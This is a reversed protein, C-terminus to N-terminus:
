LYIQPQNDPQKYFRKYSWQYQEPYEMILTEMQQNIKHSLAELSWELDLDEAERIVLKFGVSTRVVVSFVVACETKKIIKAPLTMTWAPQNFFPVFVGANEAPEQDPLLLTLKGAKVAKLISRIGSTNAPFVEAGDKERVQRILADMAEMRPPKYMAAIEFERSMLPLLMEWNGLHPSLLLVGKGAKYKEELVSFNDYELHLKALKKARWIWTASLEAVLEGASVLSSKALENQQTQNLHPLCHAINTRTFHVAKKSFWWNLRGFLRGLCQSVSLPLKALGKVLLVALRQKIPYNQKLSPTM